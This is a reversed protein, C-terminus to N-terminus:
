EEDRILYGSVILWDLAATVAERSEGQAALRDVIEEVAGSPNSIIRVYLGLALLSVSTDDIIKRAVLEPRNPDRAVTIEVRDWDDEAMNNDRDPM